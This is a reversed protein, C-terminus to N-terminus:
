TIDYPFKQLTLIKIISFNGRLIFNPHPLYLGHYQGFPIYIGGVASHTFTVNFCLKFEQTTAM